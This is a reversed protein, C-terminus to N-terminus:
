SHEFARKDHNDQLSEMNVLFNVRHHFINLDVEILRGDEM